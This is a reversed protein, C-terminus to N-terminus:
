VGLRAARELLVAGRQPAFDIHSMDPYSRLPVLAELSAAPRGGLTGRKTPERKLACLGSCVTTLTAGPLAFQFVVKHM